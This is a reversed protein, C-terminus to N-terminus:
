LKQYINKRHGVEVVIIILRGKNINLIVRFHGIRLKFYPSSVLNKM